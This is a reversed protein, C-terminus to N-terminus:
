SVEQGTSGRETRVSSVLLHQVEKGGRKGKKKKREEKEERERRKRKKRDKERGERMKGWSSM